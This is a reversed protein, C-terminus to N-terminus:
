TRREEPELWHDYIEIVLEDGTGDPFLARLPFAVHYLSRIAPERRFAIDGPDPFDGLHRLITGPKGRVYHPTRVHVPGDAEPWADKVRVAMGASLTM